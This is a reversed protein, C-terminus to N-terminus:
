IFFKNSVQIWLSLVEYEDVIYDTDQGKGKGRKNRRQSVYAITLTKGMSANIPLSLVM